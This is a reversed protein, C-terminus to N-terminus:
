DKIGLIKSISESLHFKTSEDEKSKPSIETWGGAKKKTIFGDMTSQGKGKYVKTIVTVVDTGMRMVTWTTNKADEMSVSNTDYKVNNKECWSLVEQTLVSKISGSNKKFSIVTPDKKSRVIMQYVDEDIVAEYYSVKSGVTATKLEPGSSSMNVMGEEQALLLLNQVHETIPEGNLKASVLKAILTDM